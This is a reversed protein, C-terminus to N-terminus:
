LWTVLNQEATTYIYLYIGTLFGFTSPLVTFEFVIFTSHKQNLIRPHKL